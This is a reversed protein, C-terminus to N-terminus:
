FLGPAFVAMHRSHELTQMIACFIDGENARIFRYAFGGDLIRWKLLCEHDWDDLNESNKGKQYDTEYHFTDLLIPPEDFSELTPPDESSHAWLRLESFWALPQGAELYERLQAQSRCWYNLHLFHGPDVSRIALCYGPNM